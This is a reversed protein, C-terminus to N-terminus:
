ATLTSHVTNIAEKVVYGIRHWEGDVFWKFAIASSDYPHCKFAIASSDYPHDKEPFVNVPVEGKELLGSVDQANM